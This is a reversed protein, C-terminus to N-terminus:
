AARGAPRGSARPRRPRAAGQGRRRLVHRVGRGRRRRPARRRHHARRAHAAARRAHPAMPGPRGAGDRRRQPPWPRRHPRLRRRARRRRVGGPLHPRRRQRRPRRLRGAGRAGPRDVRPGPRRLRVPAPPARRGPRLARRAPLPASRALVTVTHELSGVAWSGGSVLVVREDPGVGLRARGAARAAPSGDFGPRVVPGQTRTDGGGREAADWAPQPHVALHLDVGRHVWLPHIGFDTLFTAAPVALAGEERLRGVVTAALPYLSVVVDARAEDVWRLVAVRSLATYAGNIGSWAGDHAFRLRYLLDYTWPARRLQARYLGALAPGLRAPLADLFDVIAVRAGEATLRASWSGPSPPTAPASGPRSSCSGPLECAPSSARGDTAGRHARGTFPECRARM